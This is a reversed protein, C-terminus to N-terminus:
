RNPFHLMSIPKVEDIPFTVDFSVDHINGWVRVQYDGPETLVVDFTYRGPHPYRPRIDFAQRTEGDPAILEANLGEELGPIAEGEGVPRIILDLGNREDTFIPENVFGVIVRYQGDGVEEVQHALTTTASICLFTAAIMRIALSHNKM